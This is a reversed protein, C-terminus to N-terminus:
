RKIFKKVLGIVYKFEETKFFLLAFWGNVVITLIVAVIIFNIITVDKLIVASIVYMVIAPAVTCIFYKLTAIFYNTVNNGTMREYTILPKAILEYICTVVTGVYVGTLGWLMAGIISVVLNIIAAILATYRDEYYTGYGAKFNIYTSKQGALYFDICLLLLPLMGILNEKGLWLTIFPPLLVFFAISCFGYIWFSLFNYIKFVSFQKETGATAVLNGISPVVGSFIVTVFGKISQMVMTFNSVLGVTTINVFASIIINDTQYVSVGGIKHFILGLVNKKISTVEDKDLKEADKELLYPYMRNLYWNIFIKQATTVISATLLYALFSKTTILVVIQLLKEIFSVILNINTMVYKKQEANVLSFKFSVLYGSATNFLFILYYVVINGVDGPDKVIYDLFPILLIGLVAIILAIFRYALKYLRMISKIKEKNGEAVPKYLNYNLASGIGLEAFSLVGLVNTFLGNVGLYTAGLTKIFITRLVFNMALLAFSSIYGYFINKFIMKTRSIM